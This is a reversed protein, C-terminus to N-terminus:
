IRRAQMTQGGFQLEVADIAGDRSRKFQLKAVGPAEFRDDRLSVLMGSGPISRHHLVGGVVVFTVDQGPRIQFTGAYPTLPGEPEVSRKSLCIDQGHLWCDEEEDHSDLRLSAVSMGSMRARTMLESLKAELLEDRGSISSFIRTPSLPTAVIGEPRPEFRYVFGAGGANTIPVLLRGGPELREIWAPLPHTMGFNVLIVDADDFQHTLADGHIAQVTSYDKLNEFAREALMEDAEVATVRGRAGAVQAMVATYYGTGCGLHVVHEGAEINAQKILLALFNPEGNNLSREPVLAILVNHYVHRPDDDPTEKYGENPTKIQWPGPGLFHERPVTAFAEILEPKLGVHLALAEAYHRRVIETRDM